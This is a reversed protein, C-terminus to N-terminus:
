EGVKPKRTRKPKPTAKVEPKDEVKVEVDTDVKTDIKTDIKTDVKTGVEVIDYGYRGALEKANAVDTFVGVGKIFQVGGYYGNYSKNPVHM